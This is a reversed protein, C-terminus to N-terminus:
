CNFSNFYNVVFYILKGCKWIYKGIVRLIGGGYLEVIIIIMSVLDFIFVLIVLNRLNCSIFILM